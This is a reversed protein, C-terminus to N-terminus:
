DKWVDILFDYDRNSRGIALAYDKIKYGQIEKNGYKTMADDVGFPFVIIKNTPINFEDAILKAYNTSLVCLYDIYDNCICKEMFWRYVLGIIGPKKKYTFNLAIVKNLKKLHLINSWFCFILAYFQQWGIIVGYKKRNRLVKIPFSFYKFYRVINSFYGKRVENSIASNCIISINEDRISRILEDLENQDCDALIVNEM